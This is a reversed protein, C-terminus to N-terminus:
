RHIGGDMVKGLGQFSLQGTRLHGRAWTNRLRFM